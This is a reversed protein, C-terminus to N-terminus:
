PKSLLTKLYFDGSNQEFIYNKLIGQSTFFMAIIDYQVLRGSVGFKLGAFMIDALPTHFSLGNQRYIKREYIFLDQNNLPILNDPPGYCFLVDDITTKGPLLFQGLSQSVFGRLDGEEMRTFNYSLCSDCLVFTALAAIIIFPRFRCAMLHKILKLASEM